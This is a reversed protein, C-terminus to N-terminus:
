EQGTTEPKTPSIDPLMPIQVELKMAISLCYKLEPSNKIVNKPKDKTM